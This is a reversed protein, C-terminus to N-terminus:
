EFLFRNFSLEYELKSSKGHGPYIIIDKNLSSIKKLSSIRKSPESTPLDDRGISLRFLTDGSFLLKNEEFLYCVSGSTHFPTHIVKIKENIFFDLEDNDNVLIPKVDVKVEDKNFYSCNKYTDTLLDEELYHCYLPIDYNNVLRSVGRIHDFHGHTLLIAKPKLNNKEIYKIIGDYDLSPDIIIASNDVDFIVYTNAALEDQINNYSFTEVKM